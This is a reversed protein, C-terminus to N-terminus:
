RPNAGKEAKKIAAGIRRLMLADRGFGGLLDSDRMNHDGVAGLYYSTKGAALYSQCERLADLLDAHSQRLHEAGLDVRDIHRKLCGTPNDDYELDDTDIGECANACAVLRDVEEAKCIRLIRSPTWENMAKGMEFAEEPTPEGKEAISGFVPHTCRFLREVRERTEADYYGAYYGLNSREISEAEERSKGFGMTHQVCEELYADADEQTTIRMAPDYKEGLTIRHKM